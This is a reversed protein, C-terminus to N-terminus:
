PQAYVALWEFHAHAALTGIVIFGPKAPLNNAITTMATMDSRAGTCVPDSGAQTTLQLRVPDGKTSLPANSGATLTVVDYQAILLLDNPGGTGNICLLLKQNLTSPDTVFGIGAADAGPNAAGIQSLQAAITAYQYAGTDLVMSQLDSETTQIAASGDDTWNGNSGSNYSWHGLDLFAEFQEIRDVEGPHPDCTDGVGDHDSDQQTPNPDGPCNDCTDTFGDGDEDHETEASSWCQYGRTNKIDFVSNCACVVLL